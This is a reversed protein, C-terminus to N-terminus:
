FGESLAKNNRSDKTSSPPFIHVKKTRYRKSRRIHINFSVSICFLSTFKLNSTFFFFIFENILKKRKTKIKDWAEIKYAKERFLKKIHQM